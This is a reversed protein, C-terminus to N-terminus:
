ILELESLVRRLYAPMENSVVCADDTDPAEADNLYRWGQHSRRPTPSLLDMHAACVIDIRGDKRDEFRLIRQRAVIEHKIIWHLYGGTLEGTRKPRMRTAVRLEDNTTRSAVQRALTEVHAIGVAVKTLHLSAM